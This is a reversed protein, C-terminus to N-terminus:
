TSAQGEQYKTWVTDGQARSLRTCAYKSFTYHMNVLHINYPMSKSDKILYIPSAGDFGLDALIHMFNLKM